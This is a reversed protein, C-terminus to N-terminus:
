TIGEDRRRRMSNFNSSFFTRLLLEYNLSFLYFRLVVIVDNVKSLMMRDNLELSKARNEPSELLSEVLSERDFKASGKISVCIQPFKLNLIEVQRDTQQQNSPTNSQITFLSLHAHNTLNNPTFRKNWEFLSLCLEDQCFLVFFFKTHIKSPYSM